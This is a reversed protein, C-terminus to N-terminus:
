LRKVTEPPNTVASYEALPRLAAVPLTDVTLTCIRCVSAVPLTGTFTGGNPMAVM